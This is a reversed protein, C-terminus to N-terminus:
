FLYESFDTRHREIIGRVAPDGDCSCFFLPVATLSSKVDSTGFEPDSITTEYSYLYNYGSELGVRLLHEPKWMLRIKLNYGNQNLGALDMDTLFRAYGM